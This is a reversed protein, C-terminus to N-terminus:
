SRVALPRFMMFTDAIRESLSPQTIVHIHKVEPALEPFERLKKTMFANIKTDLENQAYQKM